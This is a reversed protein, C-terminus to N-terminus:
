PTAMARTAGSISFSPWPLGAAVITGEDEQIIHGRLLM